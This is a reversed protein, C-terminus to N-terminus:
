RAVLFYLVGIVILLLPLAVQAWQRVVRDHAKGKAQWAAWRGDASAVEAASGAPLHPSLVSPTKLM